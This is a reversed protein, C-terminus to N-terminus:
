SYFEFLYKEDYQIGFEKLLGIYEEKFTMNQHHGEQNLIYDYISEVESLGYSFAGYGDQWNFKGNVLNHDNIFKSSNNKLDRALDALVMTPKM